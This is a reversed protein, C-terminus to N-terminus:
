EYIDTKATNPLGYEEEPILIDGATFQHQPKATFVYYVSWLLPRISNSELKLYLYPYKSSALSFKM